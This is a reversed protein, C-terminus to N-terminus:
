PSGNYLLGELIKKFKERDTEVSNEVHVRRELPKSKPLRHILKENSIQSTRGPERMKDIVTRIMRISRQNAAIRRDFEETKKQIDDSHGTSAGRYLNEPDKEDTKHPSAQAHAPDGLYLSYNGEKDEFIFLSAGIFAMPSEKMLQELYNLQNSLKELNQENNPKQFGKKIYYASFPYRFTRQWKAGKAVMFGPALKPELWMRLWHVFNKRKGRTAMMEPQCAIGGESLKVDVIQKNGGQYLDKMVLYEIKSGKVELALKGYVKPIFQSLAPDAHNQLYMYNQYEAEELPKLFLEEEIGDVTVKGKKFGGHGGVGGFETFNEFQKGVEVLVNEEHSSIKKSGPSSDSKGHTAPTLNTPRFSEPGHHSILM